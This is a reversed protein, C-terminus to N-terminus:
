NRTTADGCRPRGQTRSCDVFSIDILCEAQKNQQKQKEANGRM